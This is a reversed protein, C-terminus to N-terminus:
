FEKFHKKLALMEQLNNAAIRLKDGHITILKVSGDSRKLSLCPDYPCCQFGLVECLYYNIGEFNNELFKNLDRFLM